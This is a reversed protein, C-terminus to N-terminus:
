AQKARFVSLLERRSLAKAGASAHRVPSNAEAIAKPFIEAPAYPFLYIVRVSDVDGLEAQPYKGKVAELREHAVKYMDEYTGFQMAGTPCTLVCAPLKGDLLRDNCMDCKTVVKDARQRPIDYPCNDRIDEYPADKTLDTFVVAGTEEDHIIAGEVDEAAYFCPPDICHRCQEPFFIWNVKDDEVPIEKFHVLKLTNGTLEKPNQHSGWNHTKEAPLDKWQKCAVQCGRCATCLTLDVFFAKM